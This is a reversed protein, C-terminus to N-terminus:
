KKLEANKLIAPDGDFGIVRITGSFNVTIANQMNEGSNKAVMGAISAANQNMMRLSRFDPRMDFRKWFVQPQLKQIATLFKLADPYTAQFSVDLEAFYFDKNIRSTKVSGLSNLKFMQNQAVGSIMQRLVTDVMGHKSEHWADRVIANFKNKVADAEAKEERASNWALEKRKLDRNANRIKEATPAVDKLGGAFHLLLVTWTVGLVSLAVTLKGKPTKVFTQFKGSM